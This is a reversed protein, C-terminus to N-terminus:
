LHSVRASRTGHSPKPPRISRLPQCAAYKCPSFDSGGSSDEFGLNPLRSPYQALVTVPSFDSDSISHASALYSRLYVAGASVCQTCALDRAPSIVFWLTWIAPASNYHEHDTENRKTTSPRHELASETHRHSTLLATGSCSQNVTWFLIQETTTATESQMILAPALASAKQTHLNLSKFLIDQSIWLM